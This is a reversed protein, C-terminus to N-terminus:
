KNNKRNRIKVHYFVNPQTGVEELVEYKRKDKKLSVVQASPDNADGFVMAGTSCAKTCATQFEGDKVRRGAKKAKLITAQTMQVCLSCKEMVGRQRVVVDPNLVMRGLDNNMNFDFKSNQSYNFWNFRRVKYPCNNACYRTGVCRNYAMMNQGQKGHSTAAVPCVTECPAHNCHQCMMPQFIVDPNEAAPKILVKYQSPENYNTDELAEKQTYPYREPQVVQMSDSYYRDIRLWHMDRSRRIEDKGVVPVNNEAHCAIICAACGTCANLDISLNFHPGDASDFSRWLDVKKVSTNEGMFTDMTAPENWEKPDENLFQDLSAERAIEYRGMLTNMVQINAFPHSGGVENFEEIVASLQGDKYIPYANVGISELANAQAIKGTVGYGLALGVTGRAQGPQVYVPAKITVGNVKAEYYVGNLEMRGNRENGYNWMEIGLKEADLPNMTFYNDWSTRTVPDPLEQLWPNTAQRGDGMGVKTYLQIEWDATKAAKLVSIAAQADGGVYSLPEGAETEVAGNYLAQNFSVGGLYQAAFKRLYNYYSNDEIELAKAISEVEKQEQGDEAKEEAKVAASVPAKKDGLWVLLSEQFQRTNLVPQITPQQLAYVGSLPIFDGWSELWHNVPALVNVSKATEDDISLMGVSLPIKKLAEKIEAGYFSNAVPNADYIFLAGILGAKADNVFQKFKANNSEKLLNAKETVANADLTKNILHGLVQAEKSGDVLVVAKSGKAQLEQAIVKATANSTGGGNLATYVEALVKYVDSPKLPFRSDANSGTLSLNAEVQIHRLMNKGPKRAAAYSKELSIGNHSNLFDANFGVVLETNSLDYYPLVRKGFVEEAADLAPTADVADFVVHEAGYKSAFSNIIAKTSPSPLSPTLVVVKKGGLNSLKQQITKDVTAWDSKEGNLAPDKIRNSDYLSLVSAQVRANADGLYKLEKNPEIKIPRGERTKVLVSAYDYGDYMTSAYYTPVGPMVDIPKVVYPVSKIVPAECAALTAAATSFGLFKLFDRRSTKSSEMTKKDGLFEDVPLEEAFENAALKETLSDNYLEEISGRYKKNSAM